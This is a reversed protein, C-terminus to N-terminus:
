GKKKLTSEGEFIIYDKFKEVKKEKIGKVKMIDALTKFSGNNTRYEIIAGAKKESIGPLMCLQEATATNINLKGELVTKEQKAKKAPKQADQALAPMGALALIVVAAVATFLTRVAKM